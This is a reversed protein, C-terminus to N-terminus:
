GNNRMAIDALIDSLKENTKNSRDIAAIFKDDKEKADERYNEKDKQWQRDRYIVYALLVVVIAGLVEYINGSMFGKSTNVAVETLEVTQALAQKM